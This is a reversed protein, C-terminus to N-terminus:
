PGAFHMIQIVPGPSRDHAEHGRAKRV